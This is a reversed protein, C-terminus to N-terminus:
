KNGSEPKSAIQRKQSRKHSVYFFLGIVSCSVLGLLWYFPSRKQSERMAIVDPLEYYKLNFEAEPTGAFKWDSYYAPYDKRSSREMHVVKPLRYGELPEGYEVTMSADIKGSEKDFTEQRLLSWHNAPDLGVRCKKKPVSGFLFTVWIQGSSADAPSVDLLEFTKTEMLKYLLLPRAGLPVTLYRGSYNEYYLVERESTGIGKLSFPETSEHRELNFFKGNDYSEVSELRISVGRSVGTKVSHVKEKGHDAQFEYEIRKKKDNTEVLIKGKVRALRTALMKSERPYEELFRAKLVEDGMSSLNLVFMLVIANCAHDAFKM